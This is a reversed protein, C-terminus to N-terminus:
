LDIGTPLREPLILKHTNVYFQGKDTDIFGKVSNISNRINYVKCIGIRKDEHIYFAKTKPTNEM